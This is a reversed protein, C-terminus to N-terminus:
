VTRRRSSGAEGHHNRRSLINREILCFPPVSHVLDDRLRNLDRERGPRERRSERTAAHESRVIAAALLVAAALLGALAAALLLAAPLLGMAHVRRHSDTDARVADVRAAVGVDAAM